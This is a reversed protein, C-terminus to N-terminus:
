RRHGRHKTARGGARRNCAAHEPGTWTTRDDTHGLDWPTGALIPKGCRTCRVAGTAVQPAWQKRLADHTADYGRQTRSGRTQEHQQAHTPCRRQGPPLLEPCGATPCPKRPASPM